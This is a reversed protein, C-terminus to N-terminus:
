LSVLISVNGTAIKGFLGWRNSCPIYSRPRVEGDMIGIYVPFGEATYGGILGNPPLPTGLEFKVYYVTCGDRIRLYQCPYGDTSKFAGGEDRSYCVSLLQHGVFDNGKKQMRAAFRESDETVSRDDGKPHGNANPIWQICEGSQRTTFLVFAMGPHRTAKPCTATFYTCINDTLNYNVSQCNSTELCFLECHHWPLKSIIIGETPCYRGHLPIEFDYSECTNHSCVITSCMLSLISTILKNEMRSVASLKPEALLTVSLNIHLLLKILQFTVKSWVVSAYTFFVIHCRSRPCDGNPCDGGPCKGGPLWWLLVWLLLSPLSLKKVM